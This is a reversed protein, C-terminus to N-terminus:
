RLALLPPVCAARWAPVACALMAGGLLVLLSAIWLGPDGAELAHVESSVWRAVLMALVGGALLGLLALRLGHGLLIRALRGPSAGVAARLGLEARRQELQWAVVGYVGAMVLALATLAFGGLLYALLNQPGLLQAQLQDLSRVAAPTDPLLGRLRDRVAPMLLAPAMASRIVYDMQATAIPRQRHAVYITAVPRGVPSEHVDGVVGVVTLATLDGDMNGFQLLQGLPDQGPFYRAALGASIVAVHATDPRDASSFSRGRLLAIRLSSFYDESIVRFAAHGARDPLRALAGFSDWDSVEDARRLKLFTGEVGAGTLPLANTAAVYEVSPLARLADLVAEHRQALAAPIDTDAPMAHVLQAAVVGAADFGSDIRLTKLLQQGVLAAALLLLVSLAMQGVVLVASNARGLVRPSQAQGSEAQRWLWRGAPLSLALSLVAVTTLVTGTLSSDLSPRALSRIELDNILSAAWSPASHLLMLSIAVGLLAAVTSILVSEILLARFLRGPTAGLLMRLRLDAKGAAMRTQQLAVANALAILLLLLAAAQSALVPAHLGQGLSQQLPTLKVDHMWTEDGHVAQLSAAFRSAAQQAGDLSAGDRLRAIVDTNLATRSSGRDADSRLVWAQTAQPFRQPEPLVGVVELWRGGVRLRQGELTTAGDFLQQWLSQALVVGGEDGAGLGRGIVPTARMVAFFEPSVVAVRARRAGDGADIGLVISQYQAVGDFATVGRRFDEANPDAMRQAIHGEAHVEQLRLLSSSQPYPLTGLLTTSTVSYLTLSAAIGLALIAVMLLVTGGPRALSRAALRLADVSVLSGARTLRM